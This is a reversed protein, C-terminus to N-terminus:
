EFLNDIFKAEHENAPVLPLRVSGVEIGKKNLAYKVPVPNSTIFLGEFVPLYKRHLSAATQVDGKVYTEILSKMQQGIVHSAVSVVGHGGVSLTPLTLKDDGTYVKFGVPAKDVLVAVPTLDGSAEKVSTINSIQALRLITEVQMNIASRGPINYLMVPLTTSEAIAKFHQYLGEQSPKNYYPVVLMIGDVGAEEAKRTLEISAQTSNSGTGAIVKAKGKAQQAVHKFLAVKEEKSLTPSEGTTGGVVITDTGTQILHNVLQTTKEFDVELDENFPTVMATLLRGFDTM